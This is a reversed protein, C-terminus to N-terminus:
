SVCHFHSSVIFSIDKIRQIGLSLSKDPLIVNVEFLLFQLSSDNGTVVTIRAPPSPFRSPKRFSKRFTSPFLMIPSITLRTTGNEFSIKREQEALSAAMKSVLLTASLHWSRISLITTSEFGPFPGRSPSKWPRFFAELLHTKRTPHSMGEKISLTTRRIHDNL